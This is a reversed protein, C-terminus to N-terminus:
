FVKGSARLKAETVEIYLSSILGQVKVSQKSYDQRLAARAQEGNGEDTLQVILSAALHFQGHVMKLQSFVPIHGYVDGGPGNIWKGLVCQNDRCIQRYDLKETSTGEVYSLLRAKWKQHAAIAEVFNLGSVESGKLDAETLDLMLDLKSQPLGVDPLITPGVSDASAIATVPATRTKEAVEVKIDTAALRKMWDVIGM